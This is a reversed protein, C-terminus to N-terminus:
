LRSTNDNLTGGNGAASLNELQQFFLPMDIRYDVGVKIHPVTGAKCGNLIFHRSLGTIEAAGRVSQYRAKPDIEKKRSM